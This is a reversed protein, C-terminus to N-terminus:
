SYQYSSSQRFRPLFKAFCAVAIGSCDLDPRRFSYAGEFLFCQGAHDSWCMLDSDPMKGVSAILSVLM